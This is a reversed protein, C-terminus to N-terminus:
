NLALGTTCRCRPHAPPGDIEDGDVNFTGGLPKRVGDMPECIPCLRDDPTVIWEEEEDGTLLGDDVAQSWAERQGGNSAAMTETRAITEARVDDGILETIQDALEHTDFDGDFAEDVLDRIAERTATSMNDILEGTHEAIWEKARPNTRDFAFGKIKPALARLMRKTKRSPPTVERISVIAKPNHLYVMTGLDQGDYGDALIGRRFDRPTHAYGGNYDKALRGKVTVELLAYKKSNLSTEATKMFYNAANVKGRNLSVALDNTWRPKVRNIDFGTSLISNANDRLTVHYAKFTKVPESPTKGAATSALQYGPNKWEKSSMDPTAASEAGGSTWQGEKDRAQDPNFSASRLEAARADEEGLRVVVFISLGAELTRVRTFKELGNKDRDGKRQYVAKIWSPPITTDTTYVTGYQTKFTDMKSAPVHVELVVGDKTGKAYEEADTRQTSIFVASGLENQKGGQSRPKIGEELIFHLASSTTGHFAVGGESTWQGREDRAEDPNFEASRFDVGSTDVVVKAPFAKKGMRRLADYRHGGELIYPYKEKDIVVILPSIEGSKRIGEALDNIRKDETASYSKAGYSPDMESMRVERIGPLLEYDDLSAGISETNPIYTRVMLGDVTTGGFVEDRPMTSHSVDRETLGLKPFRRGLAAESVATGGGESTWQGQEDRAQDPNFSADRLDQEFGAARLLRQQLSEITARGVAEQVDALMVSFPEVFSSEFTSIAESM